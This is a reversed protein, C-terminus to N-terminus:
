KLLVSNRGSRYLFWKSWGIGHVRDEVNLLQLCCQQEPTDTKDASMSGSDLLANMTWRLSDMLPKRASLEEAAQLIDSCPHQRALADFARNMLMPLVDFRSDM